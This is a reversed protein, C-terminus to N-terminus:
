KDLSQFNKNNNFFENVKAEEDQERKMKRKESFYVSTCYFFPTMFLLIIDDVVRQEVTGYISTELWQWLACFIMMIVITNVINKFKM